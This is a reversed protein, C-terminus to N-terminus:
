PHRGRSEEGGQERVGTELRDILGLAPLLLNSADAYQGDLAQTFMGLEKNYGRDLIIPLKQEAWASWERAREPMGLFQALEAGRHAAVWCM